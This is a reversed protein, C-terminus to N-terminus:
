KTWSGDGAPPSLSVQALEQPPLTEYVAAAGMVVFCCLVIRCVFLVGPQDVSRSVISPGNRSQLFRDKFRYSKSM